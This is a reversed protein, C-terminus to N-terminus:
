RRKEVLVAENNRVQFLMIPVMGMGDVVDYTMKCGDVDKQNTMYDKIRIREEKVKAPDGTIEQQEFCAKIMYVADYFSWSLPSIMKGKQAATFTKQIEQWKPKFDYTISNETYIGDLYGKGVEFFTSTIATTNVLIKSPNKFGREILQKIIKAAPEDNVILIVGDPNKGLAKVALPSVDVQGTTYEINGLSTIGHTKLYEAYKGAQIVWSAFKPEVFFVVSKMNPNRELWMDLLHKTRAAITGGVWMNWPLFERTIGESTFMSMFFVGKRVALPGAAKVEMSAIPGITVLAGEDIVKGFATLTKTPDLATDYTSIVIPKGSIGGTDNIEKAAKNVIWVMDAGHASFAGTLFVLFPIDWEDVFVETTPNSKSSAQAWLSPFSVIIMALVLSCGIIKSIKREM